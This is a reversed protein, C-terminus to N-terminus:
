QDWSTVRGNEFYVYEYKPKTYRSYTRYCFQATTGWSYTSRNIDQPRGISLAVQEETMGMVVDQNLIATKFSGPLLPHDDIYKIRTGRHLDPTVCAALMACLVGTFLLRRM